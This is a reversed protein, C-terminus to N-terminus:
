ICKKCPEPGGYFIWDVMYVLDDIDVIIDDCNYNASEMPNPPLGGKFAYDVFYVADDIDIANDANVDGVFQCVKVWPIVNRLQIPIDQGYRDTAYAGVITIDSEGFGITPIPIVLLHGPGSITASDLLYAMDVTLRSASNWIYNFYVSNIEDSGFLGGLKVAISDNPFNLTTDYALINPDVEIDLRLAKVNQLYLDCKVTAVFYTDRQVYNEEINIWIEGTQSIVSSNLFLLIIFLLLYKKM